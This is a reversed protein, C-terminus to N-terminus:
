GFMGFLGERPKHPDVVDKKEKEQKEREFIEKVRNRHYEFDEETAKGLTFKKKQPSAVEQYENRKRQLKLYKFHEKPDFSQHHASLNRPDRPKKFVFFASVLVVLGLFLLAFVRWGGSSGDVRAVANGTIGMVSGFIKGFFGSRVVPVDDFTKEGLPFYLSYVGSDLYDGLDLQGAGELPLSVPVNYDVGNATFVLDQQYPVNGLNKLTLLNESIEYDLLLREAIELSARDELGFGQVLLVWKGPLALRPLTFSSGSSLDVVKGEVQSIGKDKEGEKQAEKKLNETLSEEELDGKFLSATVTGGMVAGAQDLLEVSFAIDEEPLFNAKDLVLSLVSPVAEVSYSSEFSGYNGSIDKVVLNLVHSGSPITEPLVFDFDFTVQNGLYKTLSINLDSSYLYASMEQLSSGEHPLLNGKLVVTSGPLYLEKDLSLSVDIDARVFLVAADSAYYSNGYTDTIEVDLYYEGDPILRLDNIYQASGSQVSVTEFFLSENEQKFHVTMLGDVPSSDKKSVTAFLRLEDGLQFDTDPIDLYVDLARSVNFGDFSGSDIISKDRNQLVVDVSCFGELYSPLVVSKSFSNAAGPQFDVLLTALRASGDECELDFSLYGRVPNSVVVEGSLLIQDGLNYSSSSFSDLFLEASVFPFSLFVVLIPIIWRMFM